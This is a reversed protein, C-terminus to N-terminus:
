VRLAVSKWVVHHLMHMAAHNGSTAHPKSVIPLSESDYAKGDVEVIEDDEEINGGSFAKDCPGGPVVASVQCGEVVLGVARMCTNDTAFLVYGLTLLM